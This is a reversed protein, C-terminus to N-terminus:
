TSFVLDRSKKVVGKVL